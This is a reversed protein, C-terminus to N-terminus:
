LSRQSQLRCGMSKEEPVDVLCLFAGNLQYGLGVKHRLGVLLEGPGPWM